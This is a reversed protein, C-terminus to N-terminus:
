VIERAIHRSMRLAEMRSRGLSQFYETLREEITPLDSSGYDMLMPVNLVRGFAQTVGKLIAYIWGKWGGDFKWATTLFKSIIAQQLEAATKNKMDEIATKMIPPVSTPDLATGSVTANFSM